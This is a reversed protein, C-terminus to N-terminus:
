PSERSYTTSDATMSSGIETRVQTAWGDGDRVRANDPDGTKKALEAAENLERNKERQAKKTASRKVSIPVSKLDDHARKCDECVYVTHSLTQNFKENYKPSFNPGIVNPYRRAAFEFEETGRMFGNFIYGERAALETGHVGCIKTGNPNEIVPKGYYPATVCGSFVTAM